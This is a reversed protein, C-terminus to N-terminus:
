EQVEFQVVGGLLDGKVLPQAPSQEAGRESAFLTKATLRDIAILEGTREVRAHTAGELPATDEVRVELGDAPVGRTLRV